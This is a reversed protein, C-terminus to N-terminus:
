RKMNVLEELMTDTVTVIRTNAQYGRQTTIMESFETALDTGSGELFGSLLSNDSGVIRVAGADTAQANNLYGSVGGAASTISLDGAAGGAQYYPGTIHNLGAPNDVKGLAVYGLTIVKGNESTAVIKGSQEIKLSDINVSVRKGDTDAFGTEVNTSGGNWGPYIPDGVKYTGDTADDKNAALPLRIPVLVTSVGTTVNEDDPDYGSGPTPSPKFTGGDNTGAVTVFGYVVNGDGDVLYGDSDFDFDGVKTMKLSNLNTPDIGNTKDGVLFFGDGEIMCDLNIGTPVAPGNSMDLDITGINCGYGIQNPNVGGVVDTGESGATLTTYITERFTTRASKYGYTNVNAINNGIVNLKTMHSKLGSIAAYMAGTM